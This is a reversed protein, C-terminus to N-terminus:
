PYLFYGRNGCEFCSDSHGEGDCTPCIRSIWENTPVYYARGSLPNIHLSNGRLEVECKTGINLSQIAPRNEDLVRLGLETIAYFVNRQGRRPLRMVAGSEAIAELIRETHRVFPLTHGETYGWTNVSIDKLSLCGDKARSLVGLVTRQHAESPPNTM